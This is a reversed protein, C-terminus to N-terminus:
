CCLCCQSHSFVVGGVVWREAMMMMMMMGDCVTMLLCKPYSQIQLASRDELIAQDRQDTHLEEMLGQKAGM